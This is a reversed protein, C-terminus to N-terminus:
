TDLATNKKMSFNRREEELDEEMEEAGGEWM